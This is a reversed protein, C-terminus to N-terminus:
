GAAGGSQALTRFRTDGDRAIQEVLAVEWSLYAKMAAEVDANKDYPRYWADIPLDAMNVEGAELPLGAARWAGTGGALAKVPRPTLAQLEPAALSALIGDRSTLVLAGHDPLKALARDLRARIAFWAGPIHQERYALSTDLDIM